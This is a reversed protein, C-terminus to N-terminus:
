HHNGASNTSTRRSGSLLLTSSPDACSPSAGPAGDANEADPEPPSPKPVVDSSGGGAELTQRFIAMFEERSVVRLLRACFPCASRPLQDNGLIIARRCHDCTAYAM